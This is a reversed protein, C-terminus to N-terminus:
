MMKGYMALENRGEREREVNKEGENETESEGYM